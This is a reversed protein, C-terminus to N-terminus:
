RWSLERVITKNSEFRYQIVQTRGEIRDDIPQYIESTVTLKLRSASYELKSQCSYGGESANSAIWEAHKIKGTAKDCTFHILEDESFGSNRVIISFLFLNTTEAFDYFYYNAKQPLFILKKEKGTLPSNALWKRFFSNKIPKLTVPLAYLYTWRKRHLSSKRIEDFPFPEEHKKIEIVQEAPIHNASHKKHASNKNGELIRNITSFAILFIFAVPIIYTSPAKKM